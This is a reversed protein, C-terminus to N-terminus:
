SMGEKAGRKNDSKVRRIFHCCYMEGKAEVRFLHYGYYIERLIGRIRANKRYTLAYTGMVRDGIQIGNSQNEGRVDRETM